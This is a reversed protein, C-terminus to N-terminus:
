RRSSDRDLVYAGDQLVVPVIDVTRGARRYISLEFDLDARRSSRGYVTGDVDRAEFSHLSPGTAM